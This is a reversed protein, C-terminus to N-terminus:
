RQWISEEDYRYHRVISPNSDEFIYNLKSLVQVDYRTDLDIVEGSFWALFSEEFRRPM